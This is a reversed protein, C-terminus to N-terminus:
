AGTVAVASWRGYAYHVHFDLGFLARLRSDTFGDRTSGQFVITGPAPHSDTQCSSMRGMMAVKDFGQPIEELRHTVLIITIHPHSQALETLAQMMIERGGLDLGTTPEDLILLESQAMLARCVLIRTREGESCRQLQSGILYEVGFQRMLARAQEYDQESYTDKWKGTVAQLATVVVDLPDEHPPFARALEASCLGIRHRYSFVNVKGLRHGLVDVTGSTPFGRTAMMHVLSSKGVGNPGFLVWRQGREITLNVDDLITRGYRRLSVHRLVVAMADDSM